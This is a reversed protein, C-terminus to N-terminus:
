PHLNINNAHLSLLASFSFCIILNKVDDVASVNEMEGDGEAHLTEVMLMMKEKM